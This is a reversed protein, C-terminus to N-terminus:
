SSAGEHQEVIMKLIAETIDPYEVKPVTVDALWEGIKAHQKKRLNKIVPVGMAKLAAANCQQEYQGRMPVVMLKKGMFLAEAPTEFGAGCLVGTASALSQLFAENCVPQVAVNGAQYAKKTHKSFVEWHMNKFKGLTKLIRQDDYAPLYVTYHGQDGVKLERVQQRILPTFIGEAYAQFHFGYSHTVPAYRKLVAKGIPDFKNPRPAVEHLVAAQHSLGICTKRKLFCAWASVPEFDSIVLDYDLIPLSRVERFLRLMNSKRYTEVVDVGGKKGFIFSLGKYQYRVPFGLEVDAQVGSVLVDLDGMRALIPVIDRARSIHGNGTGQIAYLIKM